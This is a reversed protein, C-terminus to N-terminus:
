ICPFVLGYRALISYIVEIDADSVAIFMQDQASYVYDCDDQAFYIPMEIGTEDYFIVAAEPGFGCSLSEHFLKNGDLISLINREDEATMRKTVLNSGDNFSVYGNLLKSSDFRKVSCKYLIISVIILIIATIMLWYKKM